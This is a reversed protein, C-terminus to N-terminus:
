KVDITFSMAMVYMPCMQGPKCLPQSTFTLRQTGTGQAMFRWICASASQSAYGAPQQLQLIGQSDTPGTYKHGFPLNVEIIDGNHAVVTSNLNSPTVMVNANPMNGRVVMDSPCGKSTGYGQVNITTPSPAPTATPAPSAGTGGTSGSGNSGGNGTSTGGCAALLLTLVLTLLSIFLLLRRRVAPKTHM